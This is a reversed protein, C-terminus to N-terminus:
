VSLFNLLQLFNVAIFFCFLNFLGTRILVYSHICILEYWYYCIFLM